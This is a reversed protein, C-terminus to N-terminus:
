LMMKSTRGALYLMQNQKIVIEISQKKGWTHTVSEQEKTGYNKNFAPINQYYM